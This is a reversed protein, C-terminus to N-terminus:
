SWRHVKGLHQVFVRPWFALNSHWQLNTDSVADLWFFQVGFVFIRIHIVCTSSKSSRSLNGQLCHMHLFFLFFYMSTSSSTFMPTTSDHNPIARPVPQRELILLLSIPSPKISIRCFTRMWGRVHQSDGTAPYEMLNICRTVCRTWSHCDGTAPYEMLTICSAVNRPM